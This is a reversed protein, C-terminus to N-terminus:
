RSRKPVVAPKPVVVVRRPINTGPIKNGQIKQNNRVWTVSQGPSRNPNVPQAPYKPNPPM